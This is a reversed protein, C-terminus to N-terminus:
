LPAEKSPVPMADPSQQRRRQSELDCAKPTSESRRLIPHRKTQAILRGVIQGFRTPLGGQEQLALAPRMQSDVAAAAEAFGADASGLIPTHM